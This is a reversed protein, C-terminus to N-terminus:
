RDQFTVLLFPSPSLFPAHISGAHDANIKGSRRPPTKLGPCHSPSRHQLQPLEHTAQDALWRRRDAPCKCIPDFFVDDDALPRHLFGAEDIIKEPVQKLAVIELWNGNGPADRIGIALGPFLALLARAIFVRHIADVRSAGLMVRAVLCGARAREHRLAANVGLAVLDIAALPADTIYALLWREADRAYRRHARGRPCASLIVFADLRSRELILLM